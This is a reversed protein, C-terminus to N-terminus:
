SIKWHPINEAVHPQLKLVVPVMRHGVPAQAEFVALYFGPVSWLFFRFTRFVFPLRVLAAFTVLAELSPPDDATAARFYSVKPASVRLTACM